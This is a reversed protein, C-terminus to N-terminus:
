PRQGRTTVKADYKDKTRGPALTTNNDTVYDEFWRPIEDTAAMDRKWSAMAADTAHQVSDFTITKAAGDVVFHSWDGAPRVVYFADTYGESVMGAVKAIATAEDPADAEATIKNGSWSAVCLYMM